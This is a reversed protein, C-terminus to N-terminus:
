EGGKQLTLNIIQEVRIATEQKAQKLPKKPKPPVTLEKKYEEFTMFTEKTMNQYDVLYRSWMKDELDKEFAKKIFAIGNTVDMSLIYNINHYRSLLLEEITTIDISDSEQFFIVM